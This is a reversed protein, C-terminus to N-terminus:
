QRQYAQEVRVALHDWTFETAIRRRAGAALTARLGEDRLLRVVASAFGAEDGPHVLLGSRGHQIYEQNQGVAEAVVPVGAALM